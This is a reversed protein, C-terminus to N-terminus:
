PAYQRQRGGRALAHMIYQSDERERERGREFCRDFTAIAEGKSVRAVCQWRAQKKANAIAEKEEIAAKSRKGKKKSANSLFSM